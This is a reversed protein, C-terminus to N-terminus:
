SESPISSKTTPNVSPLAGCAACRVVQPATTAHEPFLHEVRGSVAVMGGTAARAFAITSDTTVDLATRPASGSVEDVVRAIVVAAREIISDPVCEFTYADTVIVVTM